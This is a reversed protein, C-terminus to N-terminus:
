MQMSINVCLFVYRLTINYIGGRNFFLLFLFILDIASKLCFFSVTLLTCTQPNQFLLFVECLIYIKTTM